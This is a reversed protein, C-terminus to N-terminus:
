SFDIDGLWNEAIQDVTWPLSVASAGRRLVWSAEAGSDADEAVVSVYRGDSVAPVAQFLGSGEREERVAHTDHFVVLADGDLLGLNEESIM